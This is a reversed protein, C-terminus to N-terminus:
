VLIMTTHVEQSIVDMSASTPVPTALSQIGQSAEGPKDVVAADTEVAAAPLPSTDMPLDLTESDKSLAQQYLDESEDDHRPPSSVDGIEASLQRAVEEETAVKVAAAAAAPSQQTSSPSQQKSAAAPASRDKSQLRALIDSATVKQSSTCAAKLSKQQKFAQLLKNCRMMTKKPVIAPMKVTPEAASAADGSAEGTAAEAEAGPKSEDKQEDTSSSMIVIKQEQSDDDAATDSKPPQAQNDDAIAAIRKDITPINEKVKRLKQLASDDDMDAPMDMPEGGRGDKRSRSDDRRPKKQEKEYKKRDSGQRKRFQRKVRADDGDAADADDAPPSDDRKSAAAEDKVDDDMIGPIKGSSDSFGKWTTPSSTSKSDDPAKEEDAASAESVAAGQEKVGTGYESVGTGYESVGTGYENTAEATAAEDKAESKEVVKAETGKVVVAAADSTEMAAAEIQKSVAKASAEVVGELQKEKYLEVYRAAIGLLNRISPINKLIIPQLSDHFAQNISPERAGITDLTEKVFALVQKKVLDDMLKSDSLKVIDQISYFERQVGTEHDLDTKELQYAIPPKFLPRSPKPAPKKAAQEPTLKSLTARSALGMEARKKEQLAQRFAAMLKNGGKKAKAGAESDNKDAGKDGNDEFSSQSLLEKNKEVYAAVDKIIYEQLALLAAWVFANEPELENLVFQVLEKNGESFKVHDKERFFQLACWAAACTNEQTPKPRPIEGLSESKPRPVYGYAHLFKLVPKNHFFQAACRKLADRAQERQKKTIVEIIPFTKMAAIEKPLQVAPSSLKDSSVKDSSESPRKDRRQEGGADSSRSRKKRHKSKEKKHKKDKKKKHEKHEKASREASKSRSRKKKKKESKSKRVDATETSSVKRKRGDLAEAEEQETPRTPSYMDIPGLSTMGAGDRSLRRRSEAQQQRILDAEYSKFTSEIDRAKKEQSTMLSDDAVRSSRRDHLRELSASMVPDDGRSKTVLQSKASSVTDMYQRVQKYADNTLAETSDAAKAFMSSTETRSFKSRLLHSMNNALAKQCKVLLEDVQRSPRLVAPKLNAARVRGTVVADMPKLRMWDRLSEYYVRKVVPFDPIMSAELQTSVSLETLHSYVKDPRSSASQQLLMDM